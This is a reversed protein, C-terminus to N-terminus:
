IEFPDDEQGGGAPGSNATPMRRDRGGLGWRGSRRGGTGGAAVGGYDTRGGEVGGEWAEDGPRTAATAAPQRSRRRRTVVFYIVVGAVVLCVIVIGAVAGGSLGGDGPPEPTEVPEPSPSHTTSPSPSPSPTPRGNATTARSVSDQLAFLISDKAGGKNYDEGDASNVAARVILVTGNVGRNGLPYYLELNDETVDFTSLSESLEQLVEGGLIKEDIEFRTMDPVTFELDIYLIGEPPGELIKFPCEAGVLSSDADGYTYLYTTNEKNNKLYPHLIKIYDTLVEDPKFVASENFDTVEAVIRKQDSWVNGCITAALGKAVIREFSDDDEPIDTSVPDNVFDKLTRSDNLDGNETRGSNLLFLSSNFYKNIDDFSMIRGPENSFRYDAQLDELLKVLYSSEGPQFWVYNDNYSQTPDYSDVKQPYNFFVSPRRVANNELDEKAKNYREEVEAFMKNGDEIRDLLLAIFKICRAREIVNEAKEIPIVFGTQNIDASYYAKATKLSIISAVVKSDLQEFSPVVGTEDFSLPQALQDFRDRVKKNFVTDEDVIQRLRKADPDLVTYLGMVPGSDVYLNTPSTHILKFDALSVDTECGCQRLQYSYTEDEDGTIQFQIVGPDLQQVNEILNGFEEFDILDSFNETCEEVEPSCDQSQGLLLLYCFVFVYLFPDRFHFLSASYHLRM